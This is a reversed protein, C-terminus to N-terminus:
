REYPEIKKLTHGCVFCKRYRKQHRRWIAHCEGNQFPKVSFEYYQADDYEEFYKTATLPGEQRKKKREKLEKPAEKPCVHWLLICEPHHENNRSLAYVTQGNEPEPIVQTVLVKDTGHKCIMYFDQPFIQLAEKFIENLKTDDHYVEIDINQTM